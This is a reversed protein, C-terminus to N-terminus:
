HEVGLIEGLFMSVLCDPWCLITNEDKKALGRVPGDKSIVFVISESREGVFNVASNHRTGLKSIVFQDGGGGVGDPGVDVKGKWETAKLESGFSLLSFETTLILARDICALRALFDLRETYLKELSKSRKKGEIIMQEILKNVNFCEKFVYGSNISASYETVKDHPIFVVTGGSGRYSIQTLLYNISDINYYWYKNQFKKYEEVREINRKIYQGMAKSVFPDPTAKYFKGSLFRGIVSNGRGIVLSGPSVATVFIEDPRILSLGVYHIPIDYFSHHSPGYYMVGRINYESKAKDKPMVILSTTRYDFANAIKSVSNDDFIIPKDFTEILQQHFYSQIETETLDEPLLTISFRVFEGEERKLSAFFSTEVVVRMDKFDPLPKITRRRLPNSQDEAWAGIIEKIIEEELM